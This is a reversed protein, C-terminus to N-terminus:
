EYTQQLQKIRQWVPSTPGTREKVDAFIRRAEAPNSRSLMVCYDLEIWARRPDQIMPGYTKLWNTLGAAGQERAATLSAELPQPVGSLQGETVVAAAEEQKATAEENKVRDYYLFLSWGGYLVLAIIVITILKTM